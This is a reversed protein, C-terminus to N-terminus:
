RRMVRAAWLLCSAGLLMLAIGGALVAKTQWRTGPADDLIVPQAMSDDAHFRVKTEHVALKGDKTIKERYADSIPLPGFHHVGGQGDKWGLQVTYPPGSSVSNIEAMMETSKVGDDAPESVVQASYILFAGVAFAVLGIMLRQIPFEIPELRAGVQRRVPPPMRARRWQMTTLAAIVVWGALALYGSTALWENLSELRLAADTTLVPVATEDDLVKVPVTILRVQEGNVISREFRSSVPVKRFVHTKGDRGQWQLDVSLAQEIFRPRWGEIAFPATRQFQAGLIQANTDYGQEIVRAIGLRNDWCGLAVLSALVAVIVLLNRLRMGRTSM